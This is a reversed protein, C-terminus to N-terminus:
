LRGIFDKTVLCDTPGIPFAALKSFRRVSFIDIVKRDSFRVAFMAPREAAARIPV